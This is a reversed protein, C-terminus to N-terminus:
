FRGLLTWMSSLLIDDLCVLTYWGELLREPPLIPSTSPEFIVCTNRNAFISTSRATTFPWVDDALCVLRVSFIPLFVVIVRGSFVWDDRLYFSSCTCCTRLNVVAQLGYTSKPEIVGADDGKFDGVLRLPLKCFWGM